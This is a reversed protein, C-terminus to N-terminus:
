SRVKPFLWRMNLENGQKSLRGCESASMVPTTAAKMMDWGNYIRQQFTRYKIGNSKALEVIERPYKIRKQIMSAMQKKRDQLPQTAAREMDWGHVNVRNAFTCYGIGNSAAIKAWYKRDTKRQLEQNLAKEKNWGLERIRAELTKPKINNEAAKEYDTPTIYFDYVQM